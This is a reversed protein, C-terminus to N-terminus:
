KKIVKILIIIFLIGIGIPFLPTILLFLGGVTFLVMVLGLGIKLLILFFGLLAFLIFWVFKFPLLLLEM